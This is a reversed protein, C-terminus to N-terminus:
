SEEEDCTCKEVDAMAARERVDKQDTCLLTHLTDGDCFHMGEPAIIEYQPNGRPWESLDEVACLHDGVKIWGALPYVNHRPANQYAVKEEPTAKRYSM